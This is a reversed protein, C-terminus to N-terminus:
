RRTGTPGGLLDIRALHRYLEKESATQADWSAYSNESFLERARMEIATGSIRGRTRVETIQMSAAVPNVHEDEDLEAVTVIPRRRRRTLTDLLGM